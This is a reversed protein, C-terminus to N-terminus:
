LRGRLGCEIGRMLQRETSAEITVIIELAVLRRATKIAIAIINHAHLAKLWGVAVGAGVAVLKGVRVGEGVSAGLALGAAVAGGEGVAIGLAVGLGVALAVAVRVAVGVAVGVGVTM